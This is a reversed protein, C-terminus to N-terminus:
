EVKLEGSGGAFGTDVIVGCFSEEYRNASKRNKDASSFLGKLHTTKCVGSFTKFDHVASIHSPVTNNCDNETEESTRTFIAAEALTDELDTDEKTAEKEGVDAVFPRM